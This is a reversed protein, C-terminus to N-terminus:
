GTYPARQPRVTLEVVCANPPLTVATHVLEAVDEPQIMKAYDLGDRGAVMETNVFGPHICAVRVGRERVEEFLASAFGRLGHKAACYAASNPLGQLAAVSGIFVIAGQSELLHPLALATLQMPLRLDVELVADWEAFKAELVPGRALHGANQVVVDLRGAETAWQVLTDLAGPTRLDSAHLAVEGGAARVLRATEELAARDRGHARLSFGARALRLACARGIGRSAGTILAIRSTM